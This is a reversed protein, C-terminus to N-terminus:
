SVIKLLYCRFTAYTKFLTNAEMFENQKVAFIRYADDLDLFPMVDFHGCNKLAYTQIRGEHVIDRSEFICYAM